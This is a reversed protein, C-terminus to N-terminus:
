HGKLRQPHNALKKVSWFVRLAARVLPNQVLAFFDAPVAQGPSKAAVRLFRTALFWYSPSLPPMAPANRRFVALTSNVRDQHKGATLQRTQGVEVWGRHIRAGVQVTRWGCHGQALLRCCLDTDEDICLSTELGGIARFVASRVWFGQGMGAVKKRLMGGPRIASESWRCYYAPAGPNGAADYTVIEMASYGWQAWPKRAAIHLVQAPYGPLVEDDDDLFLLIDGQAAAAGMNRAASAGTRGATRLIRLHPPKGMAQPLMLPLDQGDDVVVVEGGPPLADLASQVARWVLAPRDCTPIIISLTPTRM